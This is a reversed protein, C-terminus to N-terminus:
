EEQHGFGRRLWDVLHFARRREAARSARGRPQGAAPALVLRQEFGLMGHDSAIVIVGPLAMRLLGTLRLLEQTGLVGALDALLVVSPRSLLLRAFALRLRDPEDLAMEWDAAVNLRQTLTGLGVGRLVAVIAEQPAGGAPALLRAPSVPPLWPRRPLVAVQAPRTLRGEGWPWLGAIALFLARVARPDGLVEARMGPAFRTEPPAALPTGDPLTLRVGELRLEGDGTAVVLGPAEADAAELAVALALIRDASAGWEALRAANDVPWSLAGVTQQFGQAIQMMGGLTLTGALYRPAAVLLPLIPSVTVFASQFANLNRLGLTQRFWTSALVEFRRLLEARAVPEGRAVALGEDHERTGALGFRLDAEARQRERTAKTLPKGLTFAAVAGGAAYILALLVLHGPILVGFITVRGSLSWLIGVFTALVGLCFFLSSCLEVAQETAVRIDEAIRGDPNDPSGPLQALRWHRGQDLWTSLLRATLARRWSLAVGRKAALQAANSAIIMLLLAFFQAVAMSLAATDRRELADFLTANWLNYAVALAVQLATLSLLLLIAGVTRWRKLWPASLTVFGHLTSNQPRVTGRGGATGVSM